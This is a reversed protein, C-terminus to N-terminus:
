GLGKELLKIAPELRQRAKWFNAWLDGKKQLRRSITKLNWIDPRLKGNLEQAEVPTSIPAHPLARVSYVAALSQAQFNQHADVYISARPRKRVSRETTILRPNERAVLLAVTHVFQRAQEYTYHPEIPLFLHLGSAGSTKLFVTMGIDHLNTAFLRGLKAVSAFMTGPGPDLDFFIYDPHEIDGARSSWPNHDICGLNTLYLLSARDDALFYRIARNKDESTISVTRMWEPPKKGADKQFFAEGEIGNPYRRLVLPRDKLFPLILPAMRFYYDLLNRKTYGDNPFYVKNLHTLHLPKGDLEVSLDESSGNKLEEGIEEEAVM